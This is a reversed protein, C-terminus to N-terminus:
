HISDFLFSILKFLNRMNKGSQIKTFSNFINYISLCLWQILYKNLNFHFISINLFFLNTAKHSIRMLLESQFKSLVIRETQLSFLNLNSSIGLM